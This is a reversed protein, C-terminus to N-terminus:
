IHSYHLSSFVHVAHVSAIECAAALNYPEHLYVSRISISLPLGLNM